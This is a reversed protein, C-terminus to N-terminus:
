ALDGRIVLSVVWSVAAGLPVGGTARIVASGEFVGAVELAVSAATPVAAALVVWRLTSDWAVSLRRGSVWVGAVVAGLAAGAYLGACRACVPMQVGWLRFSREPRQHCLLGGVVYTGASLATGPAGGVEHATAFPVLVLLALWILTLVLFARAWGRRSGRAM